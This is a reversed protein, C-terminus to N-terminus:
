SCGVHSPPSRNQPTAHSASRPFSPPSLLAAAPLLLFLARVPPVARELRSRLAGCERELAAYRETQAKKWFLLEAVEDGACRAALQATRERSDAKEAEQILQPHPPSPVISAHSPTLRSRPAPSATSLAALPMGPTTPSRLRSRSSRVKHHLENNEKLLRANELSLGELQPFTDARHPATDAVCRRLM